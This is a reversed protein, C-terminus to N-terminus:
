LAGAVGTLSRKDMWRDLLEKRFKWRHGLQFAPVVGENAYRYLADTSVGLYAAAELVNMVPKAAAKDSDAQGQKAM